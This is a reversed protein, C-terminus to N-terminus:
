AKLFLRSLSLQAMGPLSCPSRGLPRGLYHPEREGAQHTLVLLLIIFGMDLRRWALGQLTGPTSNERRFTEAIILSVILPRKLVPYLSINEVRPQKKKKKKRM